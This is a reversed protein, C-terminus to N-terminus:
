LSSMPQSRACIARVLPLGERFAGQWLHARVAECGPNFALHFFIQGTAVSIVSVPTHDHPFFVETQRIEDARTFEPTVVVAFSKTLGGAGHGISGEHSHSAFHM